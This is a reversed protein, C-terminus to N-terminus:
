DLKDSKFDSKPRIEDSQVPNAVLNQVFRDFNSEFRIEFGALNVSSCLGSTETKEGEFTAKRLERHVLHASITRVKLM